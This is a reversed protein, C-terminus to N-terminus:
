GSLMLAVPQVAFIWVAIARVVLACAHAMTASRVSIIKGHFSHPIESTKTDELGRDPEFRIIGSLWKM